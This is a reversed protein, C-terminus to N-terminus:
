LVLKGPEVQLVTKMRELFTRARKEEGKPVTLSFVNLAGESTTTLTRGPNSAATSLPAAARRPPTVKGSLIDLIDIKKAASTGLRPSRSSPKTAQRASPPPLTPFADIQPLYTGRSTTPIATLGLVANFLDDASPKANKPNPLDDNALDVARALFTSIPVTVGLTDKVRKQVKLVESLSITLSVSTVPAVEAAAAAKGRTTDESPAPKNEPTAPLVKINSLDLHGMHEIRKSQEASYDSAITGLYALVDGKLLRGNPGTAAIKAVDADPIHNEHILAIVSPYLPYKPNAGPGQPSTKPKDKAPRPDQPTGPTNKEAGSSEYKADDGGKINESQSQVPKSDDAPIELSSVDDGADALVAIRTGVQVSKSGDGQFIKAVVGDEQAEVDMSAKDTEIELLIDGASFSDGEKVKWSSINGETMTPSMAPMMFNHAALASPTSSFARRAHHQSQSLTCQSSTLQRALLRVSQRGAM